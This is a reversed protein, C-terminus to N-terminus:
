NEDPVPEEYANPDIPAPVFTDTAPDYTDGVGAFRGRISGNYSTQLWNGGLLSACYDSGHAEFEDPIVIVRTVVNNADIQAYHAM